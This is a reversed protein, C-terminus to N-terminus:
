GNYLVVKGCFEQTLDQLEKRINVYTEGSNRQVVVPVGYQPADAYITKNERIKTDFIPLGVRRINSIYHEQASIPQGNRLGIMTFVIGLLEPAITSYGEPDKEIYSNYESVLDEVHKNLQEIGLTSLYDPKAPVLYFDSAVLANRTVINFNPPCDILVIDYKTHGEALLTQLGKQLLSYVKIFNNRQQRQSAGGLKVAFELDVNILGLHSCILDLTGSLTRGITRPRVILDGLGIIEERDIFADFWTKITGGEQYSPDDVPIFSFTLNSQPDLDILLVKKGRYALEAGINATLTTKGVGGKYNIVSVIPM